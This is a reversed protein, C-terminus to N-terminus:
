QQGLNFVGLNLSSHIMSCTYKAYLNYSQDDVPEYLRTWLFMQGTTSETLSAAQKAAAITDHWTDVNFEPHNTSDSSIIYYCKNKDVMQPVLNGIKVWTRVGDVDKLVYIDLTNSNLYADGIESNWVNHTTDNDNVANGKFWACTSRCIKVLVGPKGQHDGVEKIYYVGNKDPNTQDNLVTIRVGETSSGTYDDAYAQAEALSDFIRNAVAPAKRGMKLTELWSINSQLISKHEAM